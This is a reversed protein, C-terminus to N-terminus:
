KKVTLMDSPIWVRNWVDEDEGYFDCIAYGNEYDSVTVVSGKDLTFDYATYNVGPGYRPTVDQKLTAEDGYNFERPIAGADVGDFRKLGTYVRMHRRGATLDVQVWPVENADYTLAIIRVQGGKSLFTGPEAYDTAPGTRAALRQNLTGYITPLAEDALALEGEPERYAGAAAPVLCLAGVFVCLVIGALSRRM